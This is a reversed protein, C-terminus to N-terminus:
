TKLPLHLSDYLLRCLKMAFVVSTGCGCDGKLGEAKALKSRGGATDENEKRLKGESGVDKWKELGTQKLREGSAWHKVMM